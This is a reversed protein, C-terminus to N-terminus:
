IVHVGTSKVAKKWGDLLKKRHDEEMDPAFEGDYCVPIMFIRVMTVKSATTM